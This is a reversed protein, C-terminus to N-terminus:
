VIQGWFLVDDTEDVVTCYEVVLGELWAYERYLRALAKEGAEAATNARVLVVWHEDDDLVNDEILGFVPVRWLTGVAGCHAREMVPDILANIQEAENMLEDAPMNDEEM